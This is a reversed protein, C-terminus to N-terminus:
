LFLFRVYFLLRPEAKLLKIMLAKPDDRDNNELIARAKQSGFREFLKNWDDDSFKDMINRMYSHIKLDKYMNKRLEKAYDKKKDICEALIEASQLGQIIGGATTAKVLSAADGILFANNKHLRKKPNFKPILGAQTSIIKKKYDKGFKQTLFLHLKEMIKPDNSDSILGIRAKHGDEPVIWAFTAISPYFEIENENEYEMLYQIGLWFKNPGKNFSAAIMSQPGDAAIVISDKIELTKNDLLSKVKLTNTSNDYEILKHDLHIKAGQQVAKKAIESDFKQRDLVLNEERFRIQIVKKDPSFIKVKSIRNVISSKDPEYVKLISSTVLGTCQIPSGISSHEEYVHVEHGKKTLLYAAYCGAPGAGIISIM